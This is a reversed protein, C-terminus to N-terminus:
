AGALLQEHHRDTSPEVSEGCRVCVIESCPSGETDSSGRCEACDQDVETHLWRIAFHSCAAGQPEGVPIEFYNSVPLGGHWRVRVRRRPM